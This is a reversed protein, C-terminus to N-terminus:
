NPDSYKQVFAVEDYRLDMAPNHLVAAIKCSSKMAKNAGTCWAEYGKGLTAFEMKVNDLTIDGTPPKQGFYFIFFNLLLTCVYKKNIWDYWDTNYLAENELHLIYTLLTDLKREDVIFAFLRLATFPIYVCSFEWLKNSANEVILKPEGGLNHHITPAHLYQVISSGPAVTGIAAITKAKIGGIVYAM